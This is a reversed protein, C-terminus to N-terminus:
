RSCMVASRFGVKAPDGRLEAIKATGPVQEGTVSGQGDGGEKVENVKNVEAEWGMPIWEKSKGSGGRIYPVVGAEIARGQLTRNSVMVQKDQHLTDWDVPGGDLRYLLYVATLLKLLADGLMELRQYSKGHGAGHASPCTLATLALPPDLSGAWLTESLQCAVLLDDLAAITQPLMSATKFVSASICHRYTLEPILYKDLLKPNVLGAVFGGHRSNHVVDVHLISQTPRTLAVASPLGELITKTGSPDSPDTSAPSLDTRLAKVFTRRSFEYKATTVADIAEKALKEPDDFTFPQCFSEDCGADVEEWAIDRRRVKEGTQFDERLPTVLWRTSDLHGQAPKNIQARVLRQTYMMAQDLREREWPKMRKGRTMKVRAEVKEQKPGANPMALDLTYEDGNNRLPPLPRSTILCLKRCEGSRSAFPGGIQLELVTPWLSSPDLAPCEDWFSAHPLHPYEAVGKLVPDRSSGVVPRQVRELLGREFEDAKRQMEGPDLHALPGAISRQVSEAIHAYRRERKPVRERARPKLDDGVEGISHLQKVTELTAHKKALDKSRYGTGPSTVSSVPCPSPLTITCHFLSDPPPQYQQQQDIPKAPRKRSVPALSPIVTFTSTLRFQAPDFGYSQLYASVIFGANQLTLVSGTSTTFTPTSTSGNYVLPAPNPPTHGTIAPSATVPTRSPMPPTPLDRTPHTRSVEGLTAPSSSSSPDDLRRKKILAPTHSTLQEDRTSTGKPMEGIDGHAGRAHHSMGRTDVTM